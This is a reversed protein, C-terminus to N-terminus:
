DPTPWNVIEDLKQNVAFVLEPNGTEKIGVMFRHEYPLTNQIIYKM